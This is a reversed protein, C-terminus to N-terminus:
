CDSVYHHHNHFSVTNYQLTVLVCLFFFPFTCTYVGATTLDHDTGEGRRLMWALSARAQVNDWENGMKYYEVIHRTHSLMVVADILRLHRSRLFYLTCAFFLLCCLVIYCSMCAKKHNPIIEPPVGDYYIDGLANASDGHGFPNSDIAHHLWYLMQKMDCPCGYGRKYYSGLECMADLSGAIPLLLDGCM